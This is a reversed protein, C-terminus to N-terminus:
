GRDPDGRRRATRRSGCGNSAVVAQGFTGPLNATPVGNLDGSVVTVAGGVGTAALTATASNYSVTYNDVSGTVAVNAGSLASLAQLATQVASPM